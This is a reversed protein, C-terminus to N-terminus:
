LKETSYAVSENRPNERVQMEKAVYGTSRGAGVKYIAGADLLRKLEREITSVSIDPCAERIDAKTVKGISRAFLVDIRDAKSGSGTQEVRGFLERYAAIITGLMYRVFPAEDNTGDQWGASSNGLAEYYLEKNGEILKEISIYQPVLYGCRELLLVTLLRSMRGNGDNFPHISVFDFIFRVSALLPDVVGQAITNRYTECLQEVAAPTEFASTPQFRVHMTGDAARSVIQNDATKWAGGFSLNTHAFLDRHLQLIVSPKVDIYDHQEHILELMDRYGAIEAESRNKPATSGQMLGKLRAQTTVIGEIRNSAETSAFKAQELLSGLIDPKVNELVVQRGKCERAELLLSTVSDQRLSDPTISYDFQQM